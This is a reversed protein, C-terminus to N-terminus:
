RCFMYCKPKNYRGMKYPFLMHCFFLYFIIVTTVIDHAANLGLEMTQDKAHESVVVNLVHEKEFTLSFSEGDTM